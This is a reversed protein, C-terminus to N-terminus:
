VLRYFSHCLGDVHENKHDITHDDARLDSIRSHVAYAGSIRVLDPMPVWQGKHKLLHELILSSQTQRRQTSM